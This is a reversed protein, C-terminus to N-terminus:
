CKLLKWCSDGQSYFKIADYAEGGLFHKLVDLKMSPKLNKTLVNEKFHNIFNNYRIFRDQGTPVFKETVLSSINITSSQDIAKKREIYADHICRIENGADIVHSVAKTFYPVEDFKVM